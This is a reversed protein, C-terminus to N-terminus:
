AGRNQGKKVIVFRFDVLINGSIQQGNKAWTATGGLRDRNDFDPFFTDKIFLIEARPELENLLKRVYDQTYLNFYNWRVPKGQADFIQQDELVTSSYDSDTRVEQIIYNREGFATRIILTDKTVRLLEEFAKVPNPPLHLLLNICTTINAFETEVPISYVSGVKFDACSGHAKQALDIYQQTADIGTYCINKDIRERLSRLYHGAGCGVDLLSKGASYYPRLIDCLAISSYM